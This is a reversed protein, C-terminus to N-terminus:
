NTYYVKAEFPLPTSNPLMISIIGPMKVTGFRDHSYQYVPYHHEGVQNHRHSSIKLRNLPSGYKNVAKRYPEGLYSYALQISITTRDAPNTQAPAPSWFLARLSDFHGEGITNWTAPEAKRTSPPTWTQSVLLPSIPYCLCTLHGNSYANSISAYYQTAYATGDQAAHIPFAKTYRGIVPTFGLNLITNNGFMEASFVEWCTEDFLNGDETFRREQYAIPMAIPGYENFESRSMTVLRQGSEKDKVASTFQDLLYSPDSDVKLRSLRVVPISTNAATVTQFIYRPESVQRWIIDGGPTINGNATILRQLVQDPLASPLGNREKLLKLYNNQGQTENTMIIDHNYKIISDSCLM